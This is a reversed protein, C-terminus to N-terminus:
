DEANVTLAGSYYYKSETITGTVEYEKSGELNTNSNFGVSFEPQTCTDGFQLYEAGVCKSDKLFCILNSNLTNQLQEFTSASDGLVIFKFTHKMLRAGPDGTPESTVVLSGNKVAYEFVGKDTPWTHATTIKVKDGIVSPSVSPAAIATFDAKPCFRFVDEYGGKYLQPSAPKTIHAYSAM